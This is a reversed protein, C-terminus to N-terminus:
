NSPMKITPWFKKPLDKSDFTIKKVAHFKKTKPDTWGEIVLNSKKGNEDLSLTQKWDSPKPSSKEIRHSIFYAMGEADFSTGSHGFDDQFKDDTGELEVTVTFSFKDPVCFMDKFEITPKDGKPKEAPPKDDSSALLPSLLLFSAALGYTLSALGTRYM